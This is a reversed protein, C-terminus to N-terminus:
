MMSAGCVPIFTSFIGSLVDQYALVRSPTSRGYGRWRLRAVTVAATAEYCPRKLIRRPAQAPQERSVHHSTIDHDPIPGTYRIMFHPSAETIRPTKRCVRAPRLRAMSSQAMALPRGTGSARSIDRSASSRAPLTGSISRCTVARSPVGRDSTAASPTVLRSAVRASGATQGPEDAPLPRDLGQVPQAVGEITFILGLDAGAGPRPGHGREPVEGDSGEVQGPPM